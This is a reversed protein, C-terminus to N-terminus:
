RKTAILQVVPYHVKVKKNGLAKTIKAVASQYLTEDRGIIMTRFSNKLWDADVEYCWDQDDEIWEVVDAKGVNNTSPMKDLLEMHERDEKNTVESAIGPRLGELNGRTNIYVRQVGDKWIKPDFWIHQYGNRLNQYARSYVENERFRGAASNYVERWVKALEEDDIRPPSYHFIGLTGGPKLCRGFEKISTEVDAWHLAECIAICDVSNDALSSKEGGEMLFEFKKPQNEFKKLSTLRAEAIALYEKNPESVIVKKFKSAFAESAIGAGAGIDNITDFTNLNKAHEDYFRNFFAPPYKPRYKIYDNWDFGEGQFGLDKQAPTTKSPM